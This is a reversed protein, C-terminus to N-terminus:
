TQGERGTGAAPPLPSAPPSGVARLKLDIHDNSYPCNQKPSQSRTPSTAPTNPEDNRPPEPAPETAQWRGAHAQAVQRAPHTEHDLLTTLVRFHSPTKRGTEDTTIVDFEVLRATTDHLRAAKPDGITKRRAALMADSERLGVLYTADPLRRIVKAPLSKRGNKVRRVVHAGTAAARRWRRMSFSSPDCFNIMGPLTMPGVAVVIATLVLPTGRTHAYAWSDASVSPYPM